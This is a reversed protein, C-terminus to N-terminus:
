IPINKKVMHDILRGQLIKIGMDRAFRISDATDCRALVVLPTKRARIKAAITKSLEEQFQEDQGSWFLKIFDCPIGDIDLAAVHPLSLGDILLKYGRGRLFPLLEHYTKINEMYDTKSIELVVGHRNEVPLEADFSLFRSSALTSLNVNISMRRRNGREAPDALLRLVVTDLEETLDAFLWKNATLSQGPCFMNELVQVSMYVEHWMVVGKGNPQLSYVAQNFLMSSIDTRPLEDKIRSLVSLDAPQKAAVPAESSSPAPTAAPTSVSAYGAMQEAWAVVEPFQCSLEFITFFEGIAGHVNTFTVDLQGIFSQQVFECVSAMMPRSIDKAAFIIDLNKMLFIEGDKFKTKLDSFIGIARTINDRSKKAPPLQSVHVHALKFAPAKDGLKKLFVLFRANPDMM